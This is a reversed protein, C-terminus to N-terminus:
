NVAPNNQRPHDHRREAGAAQQARQSHVAWVRQAVCRAVESRACLRVSLLARVQGKALLSSCCGAAGGSWGKGEEGGDM